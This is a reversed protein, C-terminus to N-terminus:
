KFYLPAPNESAAGAPITIWGSGLNEAVTLTYKHSHGTRIGHPVPLMCQLNKM